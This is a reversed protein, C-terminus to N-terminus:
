RYLNGTARAFSSYINPMTWEWKHMRKPRLFVLVENNLLHRRDKPIFEGDILANTLEAAKEGQEFPSVSLSMMGGDEVLFGWAGFMPKEVNDVAWRIVDPGSVTRVKKEADVQLRSVPLLTHYNTIFVVDAEDNARLLAQKWEDFTQCELSFSLKHKGWNFSRVSESVSRSFSSWDSIHAIRVSDDSGKIRQHQDLAERFPTLVLNEKVGYVNNAKFYGYKAPDNNVGAYVISVSPDDVFKTGVLIQADDDITVIINPRWRQILNLASIAAKKKSEPDPFRKTDMYHYRITGKNGVDVQRKWGLTIDRTWAYEPHYSHLVLIRKKELISSSVGAVVVGMFALPLFYKLTTSIRSLMLDARYLQLLFSPFRLVKIILWNWLSAM